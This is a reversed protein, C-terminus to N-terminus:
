PIPGSVPFNGSVGSSKQYTPLGPDVEVAASIAGQSVLSAALFGLATLMKKHVM